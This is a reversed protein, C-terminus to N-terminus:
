SSRQHKQLLYNAFSARAGFMFMAEDVGINAEDRFVLAHRIGEEDSSYGYLVQFAKKLAPHQLKGARELSALALKLDKSAESDIRKAISEVAHISDRIAEAYAGNNIHNGADRLQKATSTMGGSQLAEIATRTADGQAESSRPMFQCFYGSNDLWYPAAYEDFLHTIRAARDEDVDADNLFVELLDLTKNYSHHLIGDKFAKSVPEFQYPIEDEPRTLYSGLVREVFKRNVDWFYPEPESNEM